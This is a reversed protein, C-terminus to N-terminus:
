TVQTVNGYFIMSQKIKKWYTLNLGRSTLNLWVDFFMFIEFKRKKSNELKEFKGINLDSGM